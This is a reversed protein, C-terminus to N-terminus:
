LASNNLPKNIRFCNGLVSCYFRKVINWEIFLLMTNCQTVAANYIGFFNLFTNREVTILRKCLHKGFHLRLVNDFCYLLRPQSAAAAASERRPKLPFKCGFTNIFLFIDTTVGIFAVRTCEHVSAHKLAVRM